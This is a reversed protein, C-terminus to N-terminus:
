ESRSDWDPDLQHLFEDCRAVEDNEELEAASQRLGDLARLFPRNTAHKWRVYGNGRWGNKRLLDLGRHYAVRRFAYRTTVDDTLGALEVWGSLAAPWRGAVSAVNDRREIEDSELAYRLAELFEEPEPPLEVEDLGKHSM